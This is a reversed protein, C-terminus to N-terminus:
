RGKRAERRKLEQELIRLLALLKKEKKGKLSADWSKGAKIDAAIGRRASEMDEKLEKRSIYLEPPTMEMYKMAQATMSRSKVGTKGLEPKKYPKKKAPM